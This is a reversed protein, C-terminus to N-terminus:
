KALLLKKTESFAGAELRYFYMGSSLNAANWQCSFKGACLEEAIVNSVKRGLADYINLSVFSAAPLSFTFTTSPNFPNPYNQELSFRTPVPDSINKVVATLEGLPRRWMGDMTVAYLDKGLIALSSINKNSLGQNVESWVKGNDPLRYVGGGWTGAFLTSGSNALIHINKNSM